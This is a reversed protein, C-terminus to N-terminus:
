QLMEVPYGCDIKSDELRYEQYYENRMCDVFQLAFYVSTVNKELQIYLEMEDDVLITENIDEGCIDNGMHVVLIYAFGRGINKIKLHYPYGYESEKVDEDLRYVKEDGYLKYQGVYDIKLFPMYEIKTKEADSDRYYKITIAVGFFALGGSIIGGIIAGWYSALSSIWTSYNSNECKLSTVYSALKCQIIAGVIILIVIIVIGLVIYRRISNKKKEIPYGFRKIDIDWSM